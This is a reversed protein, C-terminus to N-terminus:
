IRAAVPESQEITGIFLEGAGVAPIEDALGCVFYKRTFAGIHNHTGVIFRSQVVADHMGGLMLSRRYGFPRAPYGRFLGGNAIFVALCLIDQGNEVVDGFPPLGLLVDPM